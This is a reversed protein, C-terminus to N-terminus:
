LIAEELIRWSKLCMGEFTAEVPKGKLDAIEGVKAKKLAELVVDCMKDRQEARDEITWSCSSDPSRAWGGGTFSVVGSGKFSFVLTLGLMADQYGGLGFSAKEIVGIEKTQM